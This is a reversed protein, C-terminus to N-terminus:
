KVLGRETVERAYNAWRTKMKLSAQDWSRMYEVTFWSNHAADYLKEALVLYQQLDKISNRM